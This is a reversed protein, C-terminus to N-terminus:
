FKRKLYLFLVWLLFALCCMRGLWIAGTDYWKRPKEIYTPVTIRISDTRVAYVTDRKLKYTYITDTKIKYAYRLREVYYTVTDGKEKIYISDRYYISDRQMLQRYISDVQQSIRTSDRTDRSSTARRTSACGTLMAAAIIMVLFRM